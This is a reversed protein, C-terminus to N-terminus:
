KLVTVADRTEQFCCGCLLFRAVNVVVATFLLWIGVAFSIVCFLVQAYFYVLIM